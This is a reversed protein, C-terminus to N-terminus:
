DVLQTVIPGRGVTMLTMGDDRCTYGHVTGAPILVSDGAGLQSGDDWVCGGELVVVLEDTDHRHAPMVFGPPVVSYSSHFGGEGAALLKRGGGGRRDAEDLMGAPVAGSRRDDEWPTDTLRFFVPRDDTVGGV